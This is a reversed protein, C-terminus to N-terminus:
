KVPLTITFCAGHGRVNRWAITGGYRTAIQRCVHLGLGCGRPKESVFPAFVDENHLSVGPGDDTISLDMSKQNLEATILINGGDPMADLANCLINLLIQRLEGPGCFVNINRCEEPIQVIMRANAHRCKGQLHKQIDYVAEAMNTLSDPPPPKSSDLDTLGTLFMDIREIEQSILTLIEDDEGKDRLDEALVQANMKIASLPNRIEHVVSASIKGAVALREAKALRKDAESLKIHLKKYAAALKWGAFAAVLGAVAALLAIVWSEGRILERVQDKPKFLWLSIGNGIEARCAQFTGAPATIWLLQGNQLADPSFNLGELTTFTFQSNSSFAAECASIQKLMQLLRETPPLHLQSAIKAMDATNRLLMKEGLVANARWFGLCGALIAVGCALAVITVLMSLRFPNPSGSGPNDPSETM